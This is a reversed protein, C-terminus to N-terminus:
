DVLRCITYIYIYVYVYIHVICTSTLMLYPCMDFHQLIYIHPAPPQRRSAVHILPFSYVHQLLPFSYFHSCISISYVSSFPCSVFPFPLSILHISLLISIFLFVHLSLHLLYFFFVFCCHIFRFLLFNLLDFSIRGEEVHTRSCSESRTKSTKEHCMDGGLRSQAPHPFALCLCGTVLGKQRSIGLGWHSPLKDVQILCSCNTSAYGLQTCNVAAAERMQWIVWSRTDTLDGLFFRVLTQVSRADARVAVWWVSNWGRPVLGLSQGAVM